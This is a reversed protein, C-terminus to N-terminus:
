SSFRSVPQFHVSNKSLALTQTRFGMEFKVTKQVEAELFALLKQDQCASAFLQSSQHFDLGSPCDIQVGDKREKKGKLTELSVFEDKMVVEGSYCILKSGQALEGKELIMHNWFFGMSDEKRQNGTSFFSVKVTSLLCEIGSYFELGWNKLKYAI